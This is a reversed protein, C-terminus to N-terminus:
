KKPKKDKLRELYDELSEKPVEVLDEDVENSELEEIFDEIDLLKNEKLM